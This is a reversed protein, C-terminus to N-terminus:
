GQSAQLAVELKINLSEQGPKKVGGERRGPIVIDGRLKLKTTGEPVRRPLLPITSNERHARSSAYVTNPNSYDMVFLELFTKDAGFAQGMQHPNLIYFRLTLSNEFGSAVDAIDYLALGQIRLSNGKADLSATQPLETIPLVKPIRM